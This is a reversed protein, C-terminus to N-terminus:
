RGGGAAARAPPRRNGHKFLRKWLPSVVIIASLLGVPLALLTLISTIVNMSKNTVCSFQLSLCPQAAALEPSSEQCTAQLQYRKGKILEVGAVVVYYYDTEGASGIRTLTSASCVQQDEQNLVFSVNIEPRIHLENFRHIDLQLMRDYDMTPKGNCNKTLRLSLEYIGSYRATWQYKRSFGSELSFPVHVESNTIMYQTAGAWIYIGVCLTLLVVCLWYIINFWARRGMVSEEFSKM